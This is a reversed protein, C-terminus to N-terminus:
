NKSKKKRMWPYSYYIFILFYATFLIWGANSHFGGQAFKASIFHGVLFLSFVRLINVGFAGIIGLPYLIFLKKKNIERHQVLVLATFLFLFLGIGELGSCPAAIGARIGPLSIFPTGDERIFYIVNDLVLDLLFSVSDGVIRSFFPWLKFFYISGMYFVVSLIASAFMQKKFGQLFYKVFKFDFFAFALSLVIVIGNFYWLVSYFLANQLASEINYMFFRNLLYFSYVSMLNLVLFPVTGKYTLKGLKIIKTLEKASIIFFVLVFIFLIFHLPTYIYLDKIGVKVKEFDILLGLLLVELIFIVFFISSRKLFEMFKKNQKISGLIDAM